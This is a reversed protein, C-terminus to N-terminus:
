AASRTPADPLGIGCHIGSDVMRCPPGCGGCVTRRPLVAVAARIRFPLTAKRERGIMQLPYVAPPHADRRRPVDETRGGDFPHAFDEPNRAPGTPRDAKAARPAAVAVGGDVRLVDHEIQPPHVPYQLPIRLRSHNDNLRPDRDAVQPVVDKGVAPPRRHDGAGHEGCDDAASRHVNVALVVEGDAGCAGMDEVEIKKKRRAIQEATGAIFIRLYEPSCDAPEAHKAAKRPKAQLHFADPGAHQLHFPNGCARQPLHEPDELLPQIAGVIEDAPDVSKGSPLRQPPAHNM